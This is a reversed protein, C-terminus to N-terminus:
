VYMAQKDKNKGSSKAV